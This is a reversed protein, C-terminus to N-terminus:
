KEDKAPERPERGSRVEDRRAAGYGGEVVVLRAPRSAAGPDADQRGFVEGAEVDKRHAIKQPTWWSSSQGQAHGEDFQVAGIPCWSARRRRGTVIRVEGFAGPCSGAPATRSRAGPRSRGGRRTWPGTSSAHRPGAFSEARTDTPSSRARRARSPSAGADGQPVQARAVAVAIDTVTFVPRARAQAMDGPYLFQETISARSPARRARSFRSSPARDARPPGELQALETQSPWCTASRSPARTSSVAEPPRGTVEAQRLTPSPM